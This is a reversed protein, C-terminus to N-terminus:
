LEQGPPPEPRLGEPAPRTTHRDWVTGSGHELCQARLLPLRPACPPAAELVKRLETRLMRQGPSPPSVRRVEAAKQLLLEKQKHEERTAKLEEQGKSPVPVSLSGAQGRASPPHKAASMAPHARSLALGHGTREEKLEAHFNRRKHM